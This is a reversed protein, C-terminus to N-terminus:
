LFNDNGSNKSFIAFPQEIKRKRLNKIAQGTFEAVEIRHSHDLFGQFPKTYFGILLYDAM